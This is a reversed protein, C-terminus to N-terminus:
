QAPSSRTIMEIRGRLALVCSAIATQIEPRARKCLFLLKATLHHYLDSTKEVLSVANSENVTFLHNSAPTPAEGTSTDDPLEALLNYLYDIM